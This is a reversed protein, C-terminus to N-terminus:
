DSYSHIEELNKELQSRPENRRIQVFIVKKIYKIPMDGPFWCEVDPIMFGDSCNVNENPILKDYFLPNVILYALNSENYEKKVDVDNEIYEVFWQPRYFYYNELTYGMDNIDVSRLDFLCVYGNKCGYSDKSSTNYKFIEDKNHKIFSEKEIGVFSTRRTLHFVQGELHHSLEEEYERDIFEFEIKEIGAMGVEYGKHGM